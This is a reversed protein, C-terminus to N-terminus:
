RRTRTTTPRPRLQPQPPRPQWTFRRSRTSSAENRPSQGFAFASALAPNDTQAEIVRLYGALAPLLHAAGGGRQDVARRVGGGGEGRVEDRLMQMFHIAQAM